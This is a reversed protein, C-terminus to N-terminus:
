TYSFLLHVSSNVHLCNAIGQGEYSTLIAFKLALILFMGLYCELSDPTINYVCM